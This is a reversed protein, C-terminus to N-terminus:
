NHCDKSLLAVPAPLLRWCYAEPSPSMEVGLPSSCPFGPSFCYLLIRSPVKHTNFFFPLPAPLPLSHWSAPLLGSVPAAVAFYETPSNCFTKVTLFDGPNKVALLLM